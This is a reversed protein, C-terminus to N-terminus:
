DNLAYSVFRDRGFGEELAKVTDAKAEEVSAVGGTNHSNIAIGPLMALILICLGELM